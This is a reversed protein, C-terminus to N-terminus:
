ACCRGGSLGRRWGVLFRLSTCLLPPHPKPPLLLVQQLEPDEESKAGFALSMVTRAGMM